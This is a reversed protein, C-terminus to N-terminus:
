MMVGQNKKPTPQSKIDLIKRFLIMKWTTEGVGVLEGVVPDARAMHDVTPREVVVPGEGSVDNLIVKSKAIHSSPSHQM